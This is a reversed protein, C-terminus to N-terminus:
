SHGVFVAMYVSCHVTSEPPSYYEDQSSQRTDGPGGRLAFLDIFCVHEICYINLEGIKCAALHFRGVTGQVFLSSYM